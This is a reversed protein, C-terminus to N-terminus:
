LKEYKHKIALGPAGTPRTGFDRESFKEEDLRRATYMRSAEIPEVTLNPTVPSDSSIYPAEGTTGRGEGM